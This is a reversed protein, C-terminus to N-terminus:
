PVGIKQADVIRHSFSSEVQAVGGRTQQAIKQDIWVPVIQHDAVIGTGRREAAMKRRALSEDGGFRKRTEVASCGFVSQVIPASQDPATERPEFVAVGDHIAAPNWQVLGDILLIDTFQRLAGGGHSERGEDNVVAPKRRLAVPSNVGPLKRMPQLRDRCEDVAKPQFEAQPEVDAGVVAHLAVTLAKGGQLRVARGLAQSPIIM